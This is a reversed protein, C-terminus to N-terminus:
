RFLLLGVDFTNKDSFLKRTDGSMLSLVWVEPAGRHFTLSTGDPSWLPATENLSPNNVEYEQGYTLRKFDNGDPAILWLDIQSM